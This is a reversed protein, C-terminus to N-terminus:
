GNFDFSERFVTDDDQRQLVPLDDEVQGKPAEDGLRSTDGFYDSVRIRGFSARGLSFRSLPQESMARRPLEVSKQTINDDEPPASLRPPPWDFSDEGEEDEGMMDMSFRPPPSAAEDDVSDNEELPLSIRPQSIADGEEAEDV